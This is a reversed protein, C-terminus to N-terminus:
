QGKLSPSPFGFGNERASTQDKIARRSMQWTAGLLLAFFINGEIQWLPMTAMNLFIFTLYAALVIPRRPGHIRLTALLNSVVLVIVSLLGMAGLDYLTGVFTNHAYIRFNKQGFDPGFGFLWNRLDGKIYATLYEAWIYIRASFLDQEADTYYEAPKLLESSRSLVVSIDQFREQLAAAVPMLAAIGMVILVLAFLPRARPVFLKITRCFLATAILPASALVSTRYNVFILSVASVTICIFAIKNRSFDLFCAAMMFTLVIISFASDHYFGGRFSIAGPNEESGAGLGVVISLALLILPALYNTLVGWFVDGLRHRSLSDYTAIALVILYGLKTVPTVADPIRGNMVGSMITAAIVLYIPLLRKLRWLRLDLFLIGLAVSIVSTLANISM